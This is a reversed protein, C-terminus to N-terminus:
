EQKILIVLFIELIVVLIMAIWSASNQFVLSKRKAPASNFRLQAAGITIIDGNRLTANEIPDSNVSISGDGIRKITPSEGVTLEIALHNDWIGPDSLRLQAEQNKGIVFPYRDISVSHGQQKGQVVTLCFM